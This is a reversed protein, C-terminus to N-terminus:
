LANSRGTRISELKWTAFPSVTAMMPRLPTPLDTVSDWMM